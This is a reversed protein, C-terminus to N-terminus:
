VITLSHSILAVEQKTQVNLIEYLKKKLDHFTGLSMNMKEAIVENTDTGSLLRMLRVMQLTLRHKNYVPMKCLIGEAACDGRLPCYHYEGDQLKSFAFDPTFDLGGFRCSAFQEVQADTDNPHWSQLLDEVEPEKKIQAIILNILEYPAESFPKTKGNQFFKLGSGDNFIEINRDTLGPFIRIQQTEM